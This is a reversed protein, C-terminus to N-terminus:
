VPASLASCRRHHDVARQHAGELAEDADQDLVVRALEREPQRGDLREHQRDGVAV